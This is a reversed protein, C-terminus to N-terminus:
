SGELAAAGLYALGALLSAVLATYGDVKLGIYFANARPDNGSMFDGRMTAIAWHKYHLDVTVTGGSRRVPSIPLSPDRVDGRVFGPAVDFALGNAFWRRYVAYVANRQFDRDNGRIGWGAGLGFGLGNRQDVNWLAGLSFDSHSVLAEKSVGNPDAFTSAAVSAYGAATFLVSVRCTPRPRDRFCLGRPSRAAAVNPPSPTPAAPSARHQQPQAGAFSPAAALFCVVLGFSRVLEVHWRNRM